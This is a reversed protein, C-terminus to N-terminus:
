GAIDIFVGGLRVTQDFRTIVTRNDDSHVRGVFVIGALRVPQDVTDSSRADSDGAGLFVVMTEENRVNCMHRSSDATSPRSEPGEAVAGPRIM